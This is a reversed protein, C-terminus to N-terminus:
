LDRLLADVSGSFPVAGFRGQLYGKEVNDHQRISIEALSFVHTEGIEDKETFWIEDRRLANSLMLNTDHTTVLLQAGTQNLEPDSFMAIIAECAQTHLSADVEDVVLMTGNDLARYVATLLTLLRRTGASENDLDFFVDKGDKATHALEIEVNENKEYRERFSKEFEENGVYRGLAASIDARFTKQRDFKDAINRRFGIVGAGIKGLFKMAREDIDREEFRQNLAVADVSIDAHINIKDFFELISIALAHNNQAAASLFLSNERMIKSISRKEGTFGAGFNIEQIDVREFLKRRSGRPFSYLWEEIFAKDTKKYGYHYRVDDVVFDCDFITPLDSCSPDLLFLSRPVGGGPSGRRHSFLVDARMRMLASVLNSKGSANAGYVVIAPLVAEKPLADSHILGTDRGKLKTAIWSLEQRENISLHNEAGFRLMVNGTM